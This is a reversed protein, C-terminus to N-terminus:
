RLKIQRPPKKDFQPVRFDIIISGEARLNKLVNEAHQRKVGHKFCVEVVKMENDCTGTLIEERLDAEFARLKTPKEFMDLSLFPAHDQFDEQNIDFNAEGNLKDKTWATNLFKDMGLPHASGFILGYLQSGEKKISFPALYYRRGAAIFTRYLEVVARHCHYFSDTKKIRLLIAPHESFRHLFSSAVFLLFDTTPASILERFVQDDVYNVGCPDILVLKATDSRQLIPLARRFSEEFPIPQVNLTAHPLEDVLPRLCAQLARAKEEHADSFHFHLKIKGESLRHRCELAERVIRVPSGDTGQIDRGPGAFFDFIHVESWKSEARSLFVPLWERAYLQFLELKALTGQDFPKEHFDQRV